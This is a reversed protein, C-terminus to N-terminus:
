QEGREQWYNIWSAKKFFPTKQKIIRVATYTVCSNDFIQICYFLYCYMEFSYSKTRSHLIQLQASRGWSCCHYNRQLYFFHLFHLKMVAKMRYNETRQKIFSAGKIAQKSTEKTYLPLCYPLPSHTHQPHMERNQLHIVTCLFYNCQGRVEWLTILPLSLPPVSLFTRLEWHHYLALKNEEKRPLKLWVILPLSQLWWTMGQHDFQDRRERGEVGSPTRVDRSVGHGRSQPFVSVNCPQLEPAGTM